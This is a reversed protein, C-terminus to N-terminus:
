IKSLENSMWNLVPYLTTDQVELKDEWVWVREGTILRVLYINIVKDQRWDFESKCRVIHGLTNNTLIIVKTNDEFKISNARRDSAKEILTLQNVPKLFRKIRGADDVGRIYYAEPHLKSPCFIYLNRYFYLYDCRVKDNKQFKYKSM